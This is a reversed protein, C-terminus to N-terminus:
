CVYGELKFVVYLVGICIILVFLLGLMVFLLMSFDYDYIFCFLCEIVWKVLFFFLIKNVIDGFRYIGFFVGGFFVFFVIM